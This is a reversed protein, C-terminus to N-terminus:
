SFREFDVTEVQVKFVRPDGERLPDGWAEASRKAGSTCGEAASRGKWKRQARTELTPSGGGTASAVGANAVHRGAHLYMGSLLFGRELSAELLHVSGAFVLGSTNEQGDAIQLRPDRGVDKKDEFVRREVLTIRLKYRGSATAGVAGFACAV